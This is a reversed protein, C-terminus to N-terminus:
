DIAEENDDEPQEDILMDDYEEESPTVGGKAV